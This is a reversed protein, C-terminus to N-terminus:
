LLFSLLPISLDSKSEKLKGIAQSILNYVTKVKCDMISATQEYTMEDYYILFIAEKQKPTLHQILQNLKLRIDASIQANLFHSRHSLEITFTELDHVQKLRGEVAMTHIIKRRLSKFLYYKINSVDSLTSHKHWLEIFLDQVADEVLKNDSTLKRGYNYLLHFFLTYIQSLAKKDGNKLASWMGFDNSTLTTESLSLAKVM